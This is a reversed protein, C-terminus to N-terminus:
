FFSISIFYLFKYFVSSFCIREIVNPFLSVCLCYLTNQIIKKTSHFLIFRIFNVEVIKSRHIQSSHSSDYSEFSSFLFLYISLSIHSSCNCLGCVFFFFWHFFGLSRFYFPTFIHFYTLELAFFVFHLPISIFPGTYEHVNIYVLRCKKTNTKCIFNEPPTEKHAKCHFLYLNRDRM